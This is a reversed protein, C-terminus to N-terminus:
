GDNQKVMMDYSHMDLHQNLLDLQDEAFLAGCRICQLRVLIRVGRSEIFADCHLRLQEMRKDIINKEENNM